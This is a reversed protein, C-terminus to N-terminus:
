GQYRLLVGVEGLRALVIDRVHVSCNRFPVSPHGFIQLSPFTEGVRHNRKEAPVFLSAFIGSSNQYKGKM